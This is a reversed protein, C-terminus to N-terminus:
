ANSWKRKQGRRSPADAPNQGTDVYGLVCSNASLLLWASIQKMISRLKRSSSRGKNVVHLSVLSDVLHLFRTRRSKAKLVRWKIATLVARLELANIHESTGFQPRKWLWSCATKWRWLNSPVSTRLRDYSKVPETSSQLLVDSGRTSMLSGLKRIFDTDNGAALKQNPGSWPPRVLFENLQLKVGPQCQHQITEAKMNICLGRPGLLHKRLFALVPVSGSVGILSMRCDEWGAPDLKRHAKAWCHHTYGLPLGMMAERENINPIRWGHKPHILGHQFKYQYPPFRCRDEKWYELDRVSCLNLGTTKPSSRAQPECSTFAPLKQDSGGALKWGPMIYPDPPCPLLFAIRGFDDAHATIPREIKVSDEAQIVWDFWFLRSRRCPTIGVSDLEYPLVGIARTLCSRDADSLSSASEILMFIESWPFNAQVLARIRAVERETSSLHGCAGPFHRAVLLVLHSRSYKCAWSKVM